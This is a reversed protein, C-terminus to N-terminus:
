RCPRPCSWRVPPFGLRGMGTDLKLWVDGDIQKSLYRSYELPTPPLYNKTREHAEQVLTPVDIQQRTDDM